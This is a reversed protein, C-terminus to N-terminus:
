RTPISLRVTGTSPPARDILIATTVSVAATGVLGWVWWREYWPLPLETLEPVLQTVLGREVYLERTQSQYGPASLTLAHKGADLELRAGPELRRPEDGDVIVELAEIEGAVRLAGRGVPEAGFLRQAAVRIATGLDREPGRYAESVRNLVESRAADMLKLHIVFTDDLLGVGGTILYDVGLASGIEALCAVDDKCQIIQKEAEFSLMSMIEDRSIVSLRQNRRLELSLLQTLNAALEASAGYHALDLVAAKSGEASVVPRVGASRSSTGVLRDAAAQVQAFLEEPSGGAASEARDVAARRTNALSLTVLYNDGFRGLRGTIVQETSALEELKALCSADDSQACDLEAQDKQHSLLVAIETDGIVSLSPDRSLHLLLDETARRALAALEPSTRLSRVAVRRRESASAPEAQAAVGALGFLVMVAPLLSRTVELEVRASFYLMPRRM